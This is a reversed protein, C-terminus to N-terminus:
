ESFKRSTVLIASDCIGIGLNLCDSHKIPYENLATLSAFFLPVDNIAKPSGSVMVPNRFSRICLLHCALQLFHSLAVLMQHHKTLFLISLVLYYFPSESYVCVDGHQSCLTYVVVVNRLVLKHAHALHTAWNSKEVDNTYRQMFYEGMYQAHGYAIKNLALRKNNYASMAANINDFNKLVQALARAEAAAKTVGARIHPRAAVTADCVTAVQVRKM